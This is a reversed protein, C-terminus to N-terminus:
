VTVRVVYRSFTIPLGNATANQEFIQKVRTYNEEMLYQFISQKQGFCRLKFVDKPTHLIEISKIIQIESREFMSTDLRRMLTDLIPTGNSITKFLNPFLIPLEAGIEDGPHLGLIKGGKKVVQKLEPYASTPGKRNYACDFQGAEFPLGKKTNGVVFSINQKQNKSGSKIFDNTVDFGIIEKAHSSCQITFEGHGCGVDLVKQDKIMLFVEKNFISEGNPEMVTSRWPYSYEGYLKGLQEYWEISHPTLWEEILTPDLLEM